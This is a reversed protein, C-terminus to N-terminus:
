GVWDRKLRGAAVFYIAASLLYFVLGYLISHLLAADGYAAKMADSMYGLFFIGFGIGILNNIFLFSASATARMNPPVIHQVAAIVPGLWALALMQGIAFLLWGLWLSSAFLGFAFCPAAILFCLWRARM